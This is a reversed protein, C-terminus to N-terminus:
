VLVGRLLGGGGGLVGELGLVLVLRLVGRMCTYNLGFM